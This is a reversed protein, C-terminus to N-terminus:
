VGDATIKVGYEDVIECFGYLATAMFETARLSIDREKEIKMLWKYAFGFAEKSFAACIHDGSVDNAIQRSIYIPVGEFDSVFYMDMLKDKYIEGVNAPAGSTAHIATKLNYWVTPSLVIFWPYPASANDLKYLAEELVALTIDTNTTGVYNTTLGAFLSIFDYEIKQAIANRAYDSIADVIDESSSYEALDTLIFKKGVESITAAGKNTTMPFNTTYDNGEALAEAKTSAPFYPFDVVKGPGTQKKVRVLDEIDFTQVLKRTAEAIITPMLDDIVSTTTENAM